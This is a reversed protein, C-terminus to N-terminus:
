NNLSLSVTFVVGNNQENNHATVRGKHYDCVLRVIYLGLGLHLQQQMQQSRVSVMSDFVHEALGEPLLPGSNSLTLIATNEYQELSVNIATGSESFELANNILKDLLQAIFEPASRMPLPNQCVALTFLQKPYTLQYGQMCGDIVTQLDFPELENSQISQELRTAGSMTTIIKGLREVGESARDLHKQSLETQEL